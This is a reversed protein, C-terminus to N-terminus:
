IAVAVGLVGVASFSAKEGVVGTRGGRVTVVSRDRFGAGRGGFTSRAVSDGDLMLGTLAVVGRSSAAPSCSGTAFSPGARAIRERMRWVRLEGPARTMLADSVGQRREVADM